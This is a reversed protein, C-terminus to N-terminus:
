TFKCLRRCVPCTHKHEFWRKLCKSHFLHDCDDPKVVNSTNKYKKLCIYCSLEDLEKKDKNSTRKYCCFKKIKERPIVLPEHSNIIGGIQSELITTLLDNFVDSMLFSLNNSVNDVFLDFSISVGSNM